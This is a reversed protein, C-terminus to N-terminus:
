VNQGEQIEPAEQTPPEAPPVPNAVKTADEVNQCHVMFKFLAEKVHSVSSSADCLLHIAKGEVVHELRILNSLM